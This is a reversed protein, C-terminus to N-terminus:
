STSSRAAVNSSSRESKFITLKWVEKKSDESIGLTHDYREEELPNIHPEPRV